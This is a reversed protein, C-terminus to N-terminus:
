GQMRGIIWDGLEPWLQSLAFLWRAKGPVILEPQRRECARLVRSALWEASIGRLRVGGGPQRAASPLDETQADYRSGADARAIPGPCVLLVHVGRPKLELRLQQSYAAVAFKSAPYAGLYRSVTKAALSGINVLHGRTEVLYPVAAQTCQVASLFNIELLERFQDPATDIAQGRTSRGVNNVLLDLRGWQSVAAEILASAEDPRTVDAAFQAIQSAGAAFCSRAAEELREANRGSIMVRAGHKGLAQALALGLGASSGTILAAKDRWYSM